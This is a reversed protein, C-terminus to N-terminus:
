CSSKTIARASLSIWFLTYAAVFGAVAFWPYESSVMTVVCLTSLAASALPVTIPTGVAKVLSRQARTEHGFDNFTPERLESTTNM